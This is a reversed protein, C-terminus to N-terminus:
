RRAKRGAWRIQRELDDIRQLVDEKEIFRKARAVHGVKEEARQIRQDLRAAAADKRRPRSRHGAKLAGYGGLLAGVGLAAGATLYTRVMADREARWVPSQSKDPPSTTAAHPALVAAYQRAPSVSQRSPAKSVPKPPKSGRREPSPPATGTEGFESLFQAHRSPRVGLGRQKAYVQTFEAGFFLIQASYYVWILVAALSGVAGFASSPAAFKFYAALAYKGIQFLVATMLAGVWTVRWAIHGDPVTRYLLAFLLTLVAISVAADVAWTVSRLGLGLDRTVTQLWTAIVVSALLLLAAVGMVVVSTLRAQLYRWVARGPRPKIKWVRNMAQQLEAFVGGVSFVVLVASVISAVLGSGQRSIKGLVEEFAQATAPGMRGVAQGSVFQAAAQGGQFVTIVKIAIVLLPALALLTYCAVAAAWTMADDDAWESVTAKVINWWSGRARAKRQEALATRVNTAPM